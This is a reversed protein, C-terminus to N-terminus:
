DYGDIDNDIPMYAYFVNGGRQDVRGELDGADLSFYVRRIDFNDEDHLYCRWPYGGIMVDAFSIGTDENIVFIMRNRTEDSLHFIKNHTITKTWHYPSFGDGVVFQKPVHGYEDFETELEIAKTGDWIYTWDNRHKRNRQVLSITDGRRIYKKGTFYDTIRDLLEQNGYQQDDNLKKLYRLKLFPVYHNKSVM